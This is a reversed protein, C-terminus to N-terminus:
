VIGLNLQQPLATAHPKPGRKQPHLSRNLTEEISRVFDDSGAPRGTRTAERVRDIWAAAAVGAGLAIKWNEPNWREIWDAWDLIGHPDRGGVHAAASSWRWYESNTVLGARVPNGEVYRLAVWRHAEDLPCSYFRNQWVHGTEGHRFNLWRAYDNHTRGVAQALAHERDPIGLLHVHNGMLCYGGIRLGYRVSYQQLLRLYFERDGDAYFVTRQHNGRQTIHHWCGPAVVRAIRAM